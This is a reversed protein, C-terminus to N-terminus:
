RAPWQQAPPQVSPPSDTIGPQEGDGATQAAAAASPVEDVTGPQDSEDAQEPAALGLETELTLVRQQLSQVLEHLERLTPLKPAAPGDDVVVPAAAAVPDAVEVPADQGSLLHRWRIQKEGPRRPLSEALGRDALETLITELQEVSELPHMRQARTKLEGPTQPGRLMLVVLVALPGVEIGLQEDLRHAHKEARDGIRKIRKALARERLRIMAPRVVSTDYEVVPARNTTQNCGTLLANESLPYQQPTTLQKEVLVGLIRVQEPSLPENLM